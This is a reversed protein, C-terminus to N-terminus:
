ALQLSTATNTTPRMPSREFLLCDPRPTFCVFLTHLVCANNPVNFPSLSKDFFTAWVFKPAQRWPGVTPLLLVQTWKRM